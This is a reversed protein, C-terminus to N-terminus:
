RLHLFLHRLISISSNFVIAVFLVVLLATIYPAASHVSKLNLVTNCTDPLLHFVFIICLYRRTYSVWVSSLCMLEDCSFKSGFAGDPEYVMISVILLM